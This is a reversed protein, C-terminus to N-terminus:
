HLSPPRAACCNQPNSATPSHMTLAAFWRLAGARAEPHIAIIIRPHLSTLLQHMSGDGRSRLRDIEKHQMLGGGEKSHRRILHLAATCEECNCWLTKHVIIVKIVKPFILSSAASPANGVLPGRAKKAKFGAGGRRPEAPHKSGANVAAGEQCFDTAPDDPATSAISRQM